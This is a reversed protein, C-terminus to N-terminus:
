IHNVHSSHQAFHLNNIFWHTLIITHPRKTSQQAEIANQEPSYHLTMLCNSLASYGLKGALFWTFSVMDESLIARLDNLQKNDQLKIGLVRGQRTHCSGNRRRWNICDALDGSVSATDQIEVRRHKDVLYQMELLQQSIDVLLRVFRDVNTTHLM